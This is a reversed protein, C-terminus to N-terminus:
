RRLAVEVALADLVLEDLENVCETALAPVSDILWAAPDNVQRVFEGKSVATARWRFLPGPGAPLVTPSVAATATAWLPVAATDDDPAFPGGSGLNLRTTSGVNILALTYDSTTITGSRDIDRPDTIGQAIGLVAVIDAADGSVTTTFSDPAPVGTDGIRSAWFFVDPAALGTRANSLVQVELWQNQISGSTWTIEVRDSGSVGAGARVSIASPAPAPSWASPTNNNGLKFVFDNASIASHSGPGLLDVMIGNVGRSYNSVATYAALGSGPLYATKDTAIAADDAANIASSNGDFSSNNYFLRRAVVAAPPLTYAQGVVDPIAAALIVSVGAGLFNASLLDLRGDRNADTTALAYPSTDAAYTTQLAFTGDGNGLLIGLTDDHSNAVIADRKGDANVDAVAVAQPQVGTGWFTAAQFTGNGNGLLLALSNDNFNATLLDPIRDGNLDAVAVSQPRLGTAYTAQPGFTGNGNGLLVSVNNGLANAVVLDRQGDANFDAIDVSQPQTGVAYAVQPQFTGDGNNLLVSVSASGRNTVALDPKGDGNLDRVDVATPDQQTLYTVQAQFTGNGNGLLVSVNDDIFNPVILDPQGDGNVDEAVASNPDVGTPFTNQSQFTGDGNGLLIGVDEGFFNAVVLDPNDDGNFDGADVSITVPGAAINSVPAFSTPGASRALPNNSVDRISGDDRLNLGLSGAGTVGNVTVTYNSGSGSVVIPGAAAASGGLALVFDAADVGTVSETFTVAFDASTTGWPLDVPGARTISVVSPAVQDIVFTQGQFSGNFLGTDGLPVNTGNRISDNDILDLRLEGAGQIGSVMVVYNSQNGVVQLPMQVHANSNTAVRFDDAGVNTVPESFKVSYTVSAAGTDQYSPVTRNISLVTPVTLLLRRELPEGAFLFRGAARAPRAPRGTANKRPAGHRWHWRPNSQM